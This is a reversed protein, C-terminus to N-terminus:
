VAESVDNLMVDPMAVKVVCCVLQLEMAPWYLARTVSKVGTRLGVVVVERERDKWMLSVPLAHSLLM